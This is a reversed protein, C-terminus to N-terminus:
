KAREPATSVDTSLPLHVELAEAMRPDKQPYPPYRNFSSIFVKALVGGFFLVCAIDSLLGATLITNTHLAPMIQFEIDVFHM